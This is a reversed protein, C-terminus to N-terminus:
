RRPDLRFVLGVRGLLGCPKGGRWEDGGDPGASPSAVSTRGAPRSLNTGHCIDLRVLLRPSDGWLDIGYAHRHCLFLMRMVGLGLGAANIWKVRWRQRLTGLMVMAIIETVQALSMWTSVHLLGLERLHPPTYPDVGAIPITFLTTTL